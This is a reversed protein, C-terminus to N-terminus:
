TGTAARSSGKSAFNLRSANAAVGDMFSKDTKRLPLSILVVTGEGERSKVEITGEHAEVIKKSQFLGIGLGDGKTTHFPQFLEKELFAAPIGKGHDAVRILATRLEVRTSVEIPSEQSAEAANLILNQLVRVFEQRDIEIKPVLGLDLRLRKSLSPEFERAVEQVIDNLDDAKRNAALATSFTKLGNCLHRMKEATDFISSFADLQFERNERYRAGNKAILSLTSAFNKLDHLLFTSFTQFAKAQSAQVLSELLEFKHFENAAHVSLVRLFERAERDFEKGSRDAGVTLVGVLRGSSRLPVVLSAKALNLFDHWKNLSRRNFELVEIPASIEALAVPIEAVEEPLSESITGRVAIQRMTFTDAVRLWVSVDLSGLAEQILQALAIATVGPNDISQIKETADMWLQRYDYRGAFVNKRIWGRMRHRFGTALLVASLLVASVLFIIPGSPVEPQLWQSVWRAFVSSVVLYIGVSVLTITSYVVSQSVAVRGRGTSRRWSQFILLCSCLFVFPFVHFSGLRMLSYESTYLLVQSSVYILAAFTSALGLLLFKVEWRVHEEAHRLTQEINALGIVSLILMYASAGYGVPGLAIVDSSSVDFPMLPRSAYLAVIFIPALLCVISFFKRNQKLQQAFAVREVAYSAMWATTGLLLMSAFALLVITDASWGLIQGASLISAVISGLFLAAAVIWSPSGYRPFLCLLLSVIIGVCGAITEVTILLDM